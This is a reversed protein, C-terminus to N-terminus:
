ATLFLDSHSLMHFKRATTSSLKIRQYREAPAGRLDSQVIHITQDGTLTLALSRPEAQSRWALKIEGDSPDIEVDPARTGLPLTSALVQMDILAAAAPALTGSGAWGDKLRGLERTAEESWSVAHTHRWSDKSPDEFTGLLPNVQYFDYNDPLSWALRSATSSPHTTRTRQATGLGGEVVRLAMM